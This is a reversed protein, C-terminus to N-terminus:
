ILLVFLKVTTLLVKQDNQTLKFSFVLTQFSLNKELIFHGSKVLSQFGFMLVLWYVQVEQFFKNFVMQLCEKLEVRSIDWLRQFSDEVILVHSM